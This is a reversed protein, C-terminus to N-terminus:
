AEDNIEEKEESTSMLLHWHQVFVRNAEILLATEDASRNNLFYSPCKFNHSSM